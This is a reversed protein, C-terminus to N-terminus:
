DPKWWAGLAGVEECYILNANMRTRERLCEIRWHVRISALLSLEVAERGIPVVEVALGVVVGIGRSLGEQLGELFEADIGLLEM